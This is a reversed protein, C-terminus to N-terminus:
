WAGAVKQLVDGTDTRLFYDGNVGTASSPTATGNFWVSGPAGNTGNTGNTGPAGNTGPTGAAGQPGKINGILPM